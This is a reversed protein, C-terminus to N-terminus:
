TPFGHKPEFVIVAGRGQLGDPLDVTARFPTWGGRAGALTIGEALIEGEGDTVAWAVSRVSSEGSIRFSPPLVAGPHPEEVLVVPRVGAFGARDAGGAVDIGHSALETRDVGDIQFRVRDVTPFQTATFVVQAVRATESLTGSPADFEASLNLTATGFRDISAELLRSGLPIESVMGAEVEAPDPGEFLAQVASRLVAPGEVERHGAGLVEQRGEAATPVAWLWYVNASTLFPQAPVPAPKRSSPVAPSSATTAPASPEPTAGPNTSTRATTTDVVTTGMTTPAAPRGSTAVTTDTSGTCGVLALAVVGFAGVVLSYQM